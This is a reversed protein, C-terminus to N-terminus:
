DRSQACTLQAASWFCPCCVAGRALERQRRSGPPRGPGRRAGRETDTGRGRGGRSRANESASASAEGGRGRGRGGRGRGTGSTTAVAEGDNNKQRKAPARRRTYSRAENAGRARRRPAEQARPVEPWPDRAAAVADRHLWFPGDTAKTGYGHATDGRFYHEYYPGLGQPGREHRRPAIYRASFHENSPALGQNPTSLDPWRIPTARPIPDENEYPAIDTDNAPTGIARNSANPNVVFGTSQLTDFIHQIPPQENLVAWRTPLVFPAFPQGLYGPDGSAPAPGAYPSLVSNEDSAEYRLTEFTPKVRPLENEDHAREREELELDVSRLGVSDEMGLIKPKSALHEYDFVPTPQSPVPYENEMEPRWFGVAQRAVKEPLVKKDYWGPFNRVAVLDIPIGNLGLISESGLHAPAPPAVFEATPAASAGPM